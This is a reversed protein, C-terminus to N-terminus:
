DLLDKAKTYNFVPGELCVYTENIKCHGCKGVGCSMKREFSVWIKDETVGNKLLELATFHMMVPPGVVIVNYDDFTDFPIKSIHETVLGVEFGDVKKKDLTYITNFKTKFNNLDEKFLVNNEDKFGAIFYLSKIEESNDYFYKLLSRVPSVGTGGAIVVLDKGKYKNVPFSNGYPGRMFIKDGPSLNFIENTVKGVKRITFEMWNDGMASISIPAEGIKPISIQFFQGHEAKVDVEVRFTYELNTEHVIELIKYPKPMFINNM